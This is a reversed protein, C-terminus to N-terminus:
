DYVVSRHIVTDWQDKHLRLINSIIQAKFEIKYIFLKLLQNATPSFLENALIDLYDHRETERKIVILEDLLKKLFALCVILQKALM